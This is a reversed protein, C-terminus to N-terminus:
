QYTWIGNGARIHLEAGPKGDVDALQLTTYFQPQDLGSTDPFPTACVDGVNDTCQPGSTLGTLQRWAGPAGNEGPSYKFVIVGIPARGLLEARGDGDIDATRITAYYQPQGWGRADAFGTLVHQDQVPRNSADPMTALFRLWEGREKSFKHIEVGFVSRGLLEAAGDGDVDGTQITAYQGPKSWPPLALSPGCPGLFDQNDWPCGEQSSAKRPDGALAALLAILGCSTSILRVM